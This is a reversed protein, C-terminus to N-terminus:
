GLPPSKKKEVDQAQMLEATQGQLHRTILNILAHIQPIAMSKLTKLTIGPCLPETFRLYARYVQEDSVEQGEARQRLIEQINGLANAVKMFSETDVPKIEYDEGAFRFGIPESILADLDTIIQIPKKQARAPLFQFVGM